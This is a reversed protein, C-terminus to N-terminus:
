IYTSDNEPVEPLTILTPVSKNDNKSEYIESEVSSSKRFTVSNPTITKDKLISTKEKTEQHHTEHVIAETINQVRDTTQDSQQTDSTRPSSYVREPPEPVFRDKLSAVYIATEANRKPTEPINDRSESRGMKRRLVKIKDRYARADEKFRQYEFLLISLRDAHDLYAAKQEYARYQNCREAIKIFHRVFFDLLVCLRPGELEACRTSIEIISDTAKRPNILTRNNVSQVSHKKPQNKVSDWFGKTKSYKDEQEANTDNPRPMPKLIRQGLAPNVLTLTDATLIKLLMEYDLRPFFNDGYRINELAHFVYMVPNEIIRKLQKQTHLLHESPVRQFLNRDAIFYDRLTPENQSISHYLSNLLFLLCEGMRNKPWKSPRDNEEIMWFLRHRIHAATMGFMTDLVPRMFTKHLMLAIFYVQVQSQTMCTELYREATPFTLQWELDVMINSNGKKPVFGEPVVFCGFDKIKEVDNYDPWTSRPRDLWEQACTPWQLWIAPIIEYQEVRSYRVTSSVMIQDCYLVCGERRADDVSEKDFGFSDGLRNMFVNMFHKMFETSSVYRLDYNHRRLALKIRRQKSNILQKREEKPDFLKGEATYTVKKFCNSPLKANAIWEELEEYNSNQSLSFNQSRNGSSDSYNDSRYGSSNSSTTIEQGSSEQVKTQSSQKEPRRNGQKTLEGKSSNRKGELSREDASSDNEYDTQAKVNRSSHSLDRGSTTAIEEEHLNPLSRAHISYNSGKSAAQKSRDPLISYNSANPGLKLGYISEGDSYFEDDNEAISSLDMEDDNMRRKSMGFEDLVQLHVYGQHATPKLLINYMTSDNVSSYHSSYNQEIIDINDHVTYIRVPHLPEVTPRFTQRTSTFGVNRSIHEQLVDPLLVHKQPPLRKNLKAEQSSVLTEKVHKIEEEYNGFFQVCMMLNNLVFSEPDREIARRLLLLETDEYEDNRNGPYKGGGPQSERGAKGRIKGRAGNKSKSKSNGM